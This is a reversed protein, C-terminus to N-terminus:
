ESTDRSPLSGHAHSRLNGENKTLVKEEVRAEISTGPIQRGTPELQTWCSSVSIISSWFNTWELGHAPM